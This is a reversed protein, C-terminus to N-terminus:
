ITANIDGSETNGAAENSKLLHVEATLHVNQLLALIGAPVGPAVALPIVVQQGEPRDSHYLFSFFFFVEVSTM